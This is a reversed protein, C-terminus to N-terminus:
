PILFIEVLSMKILEEATGGKLIKPERGDKNYEVSLICDDQLSEPSYPCDKQTILYTYFYTLKSLATCGGGTNIKTWKYSTFFKEFKNM